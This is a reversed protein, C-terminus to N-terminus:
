TLDKNKFILLIVALVLMIYCIAYLSSNFILISEIPQSLTLEKKINFRDFDPFIYTYSKLIKSLFPNNKVMTIDLSNPIAHGLLFIVLTNIVALVKNTILSFFVVILLVLLAEFLSFILFIPILSSWEGDFIFYIVLSCSLIILLNLFLILTMGLIKGLLFGSRSIPRSLAIYVTRSEIEDSLLSVGLFIAVGVSALSSIGVGFDMAIFRPNGFSFESTIYTFVMLAVGLWFCNFMIKSKLLQKFTYRAVLLSKAM